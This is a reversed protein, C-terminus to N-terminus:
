SFYYRWMNVKDMLSSPVVRSSFGDDGERYYRVTYERSTGCRDINWVEQALFATSKDNVLIDLIKGDLSESDSGVVSTLVRDAKCAGDVVEINQVKFLAHRFLARRIQEKAATSKNKYLAASPNAAMYNPTLDTTALVDPHCLQSDILNRIWDESRFPPFTFTM